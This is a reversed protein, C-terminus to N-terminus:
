PVGQYRMVGWAPVDAPAVWARFILSQSGVRQCAPSVTKVQTATPSAVACVSSSWTRPPMREGMLADTPGTRSSEPLADFLESRSSRGDEPVVVGSPASAIGSVAAGYCVATLGPLAQGPFTTQAAQCAVPGRIAQIIGTRWYGQRLPGCFLGSIISAM